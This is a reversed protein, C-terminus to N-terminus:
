ITTVRSAKPVYGLQSDYSFGSAYPASAVQSPSLFSRPTVSPDSMKYAMGAANVASSAINLGATVPSMRSDNIRAFESQTGLGLSQMSYQFNTYLNKDNRLYDDYNRRTQVGYDAMNNSGELAVTYRDAELNYRADLSQRWYDSMLADVSLGGVGGEAARVAASAEAAQIKNNQLENQRNLQDVKIARAQQDRQLQLIGDASAREYQLQEQQRQQQYIEQQQKAQLDYQQQALSSAQNAQQNSQYYQYATSAASIAFMAIPIALPACM